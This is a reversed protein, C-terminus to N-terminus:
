LLLVSFFFLVAKLRIILHFFLHEKLQYDLIIIAWDKKIVHSLMCFLCVCNWFLINM